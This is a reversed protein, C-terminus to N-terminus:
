KECRWWWWRWQWWRWWWWWWWWWQWWRWRVSAWWTVKTLSFRWGTAQWSSIIAQGRRLCFGNWVIAIVTVLVIYNCLNSSLFQSSWFGSKDTLLFINRDQKQRQSSQDRQTQGWGPYCVCFQQFGLVCVQSSHAFMKFIKRTLLSQWVCKPSVSEQAIMPSVWM